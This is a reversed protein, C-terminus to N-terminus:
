PHEEGAPGVFGAWTASDDSLDILRHPRGAPVGLADGAAFAHLTCM